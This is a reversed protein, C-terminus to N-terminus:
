MLLLCPSENLGNMGDIPIKLQKIIFSGGVGHSHGNAGLKLDHHGKVRM